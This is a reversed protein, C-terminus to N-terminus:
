FWDNDVAKKYCEKCVSNILDQTFLEPFMKIYVEIADMLNQRGYGLQTEHNFYEREIIGAAGNENLDHNVAMKHIENLGKDLEECTEKPCILGAGLSVYKIGEKKQENFQDQGFAFFSGTRNFLETQAQEQYDQLYKM